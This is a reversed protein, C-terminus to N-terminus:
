PAPTPHNAAVKLTSSQKMPSSYPTPTKPKRTSNVIQKPSIQSNSYPKSQSKTTTSLHALHLKSFPWIHQSSNTRYPNILEQPCDPFTSELYSISYSSFDFVLICVLDHAMKALTTHFCKQGSFYRTPHRNQASTPHFRPCIAITRFTRSISSRLLYICLLM